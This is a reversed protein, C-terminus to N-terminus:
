AFVYKLAKSWPNIRHIAKTISICPNLHGGSVKCTALVAYYIGIALAIIVQVNSFEAKLSSISVNLIVIALLCTGIVEAQFAGKQVIRYIFIGFIGGLLPAILPIWWYYYKETFVRSGLLFASFVRFNNLM